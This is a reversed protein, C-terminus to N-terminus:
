LLGTLAFDTLLSNSVSGYVRSLTASPLFFLSSIAQGSSEKEERWIGKLALDLCFGTVLIYLDPQGCEDAERSSLLVLFLPGLPCILSWSHSELYLPGLPCILLWSHSEVWQSTRSIIKLFWYRFHYRICIRGSARIQIWCQKLNVPIRTKNQKKSKRM